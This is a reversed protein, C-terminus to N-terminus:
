IGVEKDAPLFWGNFTIKKWFQKKNRDPNYCRQLEKLTPQEELEMPETDPLHKRLQNNLREADTGMLWEPGKMFDIMGRWSFYAEEYRMKLVATIIFKSIWKWMQIRSMDPEHLAAFILNNRVDYYANTGLFNM